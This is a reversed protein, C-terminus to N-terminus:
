RPILMAGALLYQPNVLLGRHTINTNRWPCPVLHGGEILRSTLLYPPYDGAVAIWRDKLGNQPLYSAQTLRFGEIPAEKSPDPDAGVGEIGCQVSLQGVDRVLVDVHQKETRHGLPPSANQISQRTVEVHRHGLSEALLHDPVEIPRLAGM